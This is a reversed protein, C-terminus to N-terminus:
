HLASIRQGRFADEHAHPMSTPAATGAEASPSAFLGSFIFAPTTKLTRCLRLLCESPFREHGAEYRALQEPKMNLAHAMQAIDINRFLRVKQVRSGVHLDIANPPDIEQDPM